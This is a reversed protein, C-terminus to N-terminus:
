ANLVLREVKTSGMQSRRDRAGGDNGLSTAKSGDSLM